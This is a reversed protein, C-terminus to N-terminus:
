RRWHLAANVRRCLQRWLIATCFRIPHLEADDLRDQLTLMAEADARRFRRERDLDHRITTLAATLIKREDCSRGYMVRISELAEETHELVAQLRTCAGQSKFLQDRLAQISAREQTSQHAM